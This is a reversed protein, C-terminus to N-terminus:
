KGGGLAARALEAAKELGSYEAREVAHISGDYDSVHWRPEDADLAAIAELAARLRANEVEHGLPTTASQAGEQVCEAAFVDGPRLTGSVECLVDFFAAGSLLAADEQGGDFHVVAGNPDRAGTAFRRDGDPTFISVRYGSASEYTTTM